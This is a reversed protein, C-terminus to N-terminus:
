SSVFLEMNYIWLCRGKRERKREKERRGEEGEEIDERRRCVLGFGESFILIYEYSFIESHNYLSREKGRREKKGEKREERRKRMGDGGGLWRMRMEDWRMKMEGEVMGDWEM